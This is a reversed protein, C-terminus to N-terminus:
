SLRLLITYCSPDKCFFYELSKAYPPRSIGQTIVSQPVLCSTSLAFFNSPNLLSLMLETPSCFQLFGSFFCNGTESDAVRFGYGFLILNFCVSLSRLWRGKHTINGPVFICSKESSLITISPSLALQIVTM